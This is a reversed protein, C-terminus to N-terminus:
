KYIVSSYVAYCHTQIHCVLTDAVHYIGLEEIVEDVKELKEAHTMEPPLRLLASLFVNERVTLTGTLVDDQFMIQLSTAYLVPIVFM